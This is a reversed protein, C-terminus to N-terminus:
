NTGNTIIQTNTSKKRRGHFAKHVERLHKDTIHTYIQTTTISSHGMLVQVARLDAGSRLLDTGFTHRLVHPTVKKSIGAILAYKKISRQVSRATLRANKENDAQSKGIFLAPNKDYRTKLYEELAKTAGESLFVIRSKSGKGIIPFEGTKLNIKGKDLKVLESVRMGTSFLTELIARDRLGKFKKADPISLLKQLEEEDLFNIERAEEKILEIKEPALAKVDNKSLYKLFARLAIMHYNQTKKKLNHDNLRNLYLRYNKIRELTIDGPKHINNKPAWELFRSLYHAYNIITKESKGKEIELYRLFEGISNELKM